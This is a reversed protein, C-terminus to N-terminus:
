EQHESETRSRVASSEATKKEPIQALVIAGFMLACGALEKASMAQHLFLFGALVSFVSELSMLISAVSPDAHKQGLIQLTYGAGSSLIGAYLIPGAAALLSSLDPHELVLMPITTVIGVTFFQICSMRAGDVKQFSDIVLIHVAFAIACLFVLFDGQSLSFGGQMCLLYLGFAAIGASIWIRSSVKRGLLSSFIPVLVVYLATIFGAKGVTTYQIGIQQLMSAATLALGVIIGPKLAGKWDNVALGASDLFRIVALLVFGAIWNRVCTFTWPGVSDMAVSQAVFACGWIFATAILMLNGTMQQRKM